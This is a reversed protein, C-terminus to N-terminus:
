IRIFEVMEGAARARDGVPRVLLADASGLVTMLSSDQSGMPAITPQGDAFGLSARMYHARPGNAPLPDLVRAM